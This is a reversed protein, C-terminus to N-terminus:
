EYYEFGESVKPRRTMGVPSGTLDNERSSLLVSASDDTDIERDVSTCQITEYTDEFLQVFQDYYARDNHHYSVFVKPRSPSQLGFGFGPITM